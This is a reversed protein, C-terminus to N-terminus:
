RVTAASSLQIGKAQAVKGADEGFLIKCIGKVEDDGAHQELANHAIEITEIAERFSDAIAQRADITKGEGVNIRAVSCM